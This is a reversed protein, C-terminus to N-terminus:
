ARADLAFLAIPTLAFTANKLDLHLWLSFIALVDVVVVFFLWKYQALDRLDKQFYINLELWTGLSGM